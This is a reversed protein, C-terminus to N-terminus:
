RVPSLVKRKEKGELTLLLSSKSSGGKKGAEEGRKLGHLTYLFGKKGKGKKRHTVTLAREFRAHTGRKRKNKESSKYVKCLEEM